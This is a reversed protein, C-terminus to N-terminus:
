YGGDGHDANHMRDSSTSASAPAASSTGAGSESGQCASLLAIIATSAFLMASKAMRSKQLPEM